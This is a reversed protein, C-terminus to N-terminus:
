IGGERRGKREGKRRELRHHVIIVEVWGLSVVPKCLVLGGVRVM